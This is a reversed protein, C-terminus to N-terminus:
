EPHPDPFYQSGPETDAQLFVVDKSKLVEQLERMERAYEAPTRGSFGKFDKIFDAQDFYGCEHALRTLDAKPEFMLRRQARVFRLTRALTKPSTGVVNTFGRELQRVSLKCYDALDSIRYKGKTRHLLQAAAQIVRSDYRRVLERAMLFGQLANAASEYEGKAVRDRLRPILSEWGAGAGGVRNNTSGIRDSLLTMAGWPFLRAAVVKVTGEVRFHLTKNQFGIFSAVPLPGADPEAFPFYPSGFNFLLEVCGDPTVDQVSGQPYSTELTWFCKVFDKLLGHPVHERYQM